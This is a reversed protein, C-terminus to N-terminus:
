LLVDMGPIILIQQHSILHEPGANGRNESFLECGFKLAFQVQALRETCDSYPLKLEIQDTRGKPYGTRIARPIQLPQLAGAARATEINM